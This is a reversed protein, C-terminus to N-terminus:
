INIILNNQYVINYAEKYIETDLVEVDRLMQKITSLTREDNTSHLDRITELVIQFNKQFRAKNFDAVKMWMYCKIDNTKEYRGKWYNYSLNYYNLKEENSLEIYECDTYYSMM